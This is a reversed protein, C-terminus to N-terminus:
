RLHAWNSLDRESVPGSRRQLIQGSASMVVSFPLGSVSNGLAQSLEFGAFGAVAVPFSLPMKKLFRQVPEVRDVALGLVQWSKSKNEQYFRELLPLEAVCPPCWTGWFNLLLPKGLFQSMVLPVGEPTNFSWKFFPDPQAEQLAWWAGTAGAALAAGAYLINRRKM